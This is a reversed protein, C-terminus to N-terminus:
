FFFMGIRLDDLDATTSLVDSLIKEQVKEKEKERSSVNLEKTVNVSANADKKKRGRKKVVEEEKAPKEKEKVNKELSKDKKNNAPPNPPPTSQKILIRDGTASALSNNTQRGCSIPKIVSDNSQNQGDTLARLERSKRKKPAPSLNKQSKSESNEDDDSKDETISQSKHKKSLKKNPQPPSQPASPPPLAGGGRRLTAGRRMPLWELLRKRHLVEKEHFLRPLDPLFNEKLVKYLRRESKTQSNKFKKALNHWDDETFCIVQWVTKAKKGPSSQVM